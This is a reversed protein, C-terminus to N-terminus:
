PWWRGVDRIARFTEGVAEQGGLAHIVPALDGLDILLEPRTRRALIPLTEAWLPYLHDPPFNVLRSALHTLPSLLPRSCGVAEEIRESRKEEVYLASRLAEKLVKLQLEKPLLSSLDTLIVARIDEDEHNRAIELSVKLLEEPLYPALSMLVLVRPWECKIHWITDLIEYLIVKRLNEPLYPTLTSLAHAYEEEGKISRAIKLAETLADKRAEEPLHSVVFAFTRARKKEDSINRAVELAEALVQERLAAPLHPALTALAEARAYAYGINRAADLAENLAQERFKPPLHHPAMAALARARAYEDRISLAADLAETLLEAPLHPAM